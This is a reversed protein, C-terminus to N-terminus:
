MLFSTCMVQLLMRATGVAWYEDEEMACMMLATRKNHDKVNVDTGGEVLQRIETTMKNAIAFHLPLTHVKGCDISCSKNRM